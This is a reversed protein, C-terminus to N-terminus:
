AVMAFFKTNSDLGKAVEKSIEDKTSHAVVTEISFSRLAETVSM